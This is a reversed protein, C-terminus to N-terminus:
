LRLAEVLRAGDGAAARWADRIREAPARGTAVVEDLPLLGDVEDPAVRALGARALAVLDRALDLVTQTPRGTGPVPAALGLRPVEDRLALREAFSLHATLATAARCADDDYLLGKALAPLALVMPLPGADAGRVELYHRLRAEPFLTSLHLEWDDMTAREGHFGDRLFRRFTMGGAPRYGDRHVFFMPVDLAWETYRRFLGGDAFAFPLLGCRDPDTDLWAAARVSQLGSDRGDALPSCAFLATVISTVSMVARLKRAADEEDAYDLNAQVTATRKMMDHGRRGRAPLYARMVVYRGKPVWAVDALGGLPRFGVGLWAIGLERSAPGLEALHGTIEAEIESLSSLPEGSLELQGGPELTVREGGRALAVLHEGDLTRTWAGRQALAELLVAIGRPGDYPAPLGTAAVVGIKEHEAGIRWASRPKAAAAFAAALAGADLVPRPRTPAM